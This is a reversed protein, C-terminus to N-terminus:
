KQSHQSQEPPRDNEEPAGLHNIAIRLAGETTRNKSVLVIIIIVLAIIIIILAAFVGIIFDTSMAINLYM